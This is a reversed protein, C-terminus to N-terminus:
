EDELAVDQEVEELKNQWSDPYSGVLKGAASLLVIDDDRPELLMWDAMYATLDRSVQELTMKRLEAGWGNGTRERCSEIERRFERRTLIVTDDEQRPYVGSLIKERLQACLLLAVDSLARTGPYVLGSHEGSLLLFFAGNQHVQLEGGLYRDLNANLFRRQNKLYEYDSRTRESWYLAPCLTLQRYVRQARQRREAEKGEGEQFLAEFDEVSQCRMIDRGFHVPFHRSLGTNEYLVEQERDSGFASSDGDCVLVLGMTQAYQLVRVLAKRHPFRTWDVPMVDALFTEIARTLDSLLFPAGDDLDALYLLLACLLCYDLPEQFEQIGMWSMAKPPVKELKVVSENVILNWGLFENVVRRYDPSLRKLTLYLDRNGSRTVWFRDLLARFEYM